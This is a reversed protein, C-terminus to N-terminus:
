RLKTIFSLAKSTVIGAREHNLILLIGALNAFITAKADISLSEPKEAEKLTHLKVVQDTMKEFEDSDPDFKTMHTLLRDIANELETKAVPTKEFM